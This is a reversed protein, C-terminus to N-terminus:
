DRMAITMEREFEGRALDKWSELSALYRYFEDEVAYSGVESSIDDVESFVRANPDKAMENLMKVNRLSDSDMAKTIYVVSGDKNCLSGSANISFAVRDGSFERRIRNFVQILIKDLYHLVRGADDILMSRSILGGAYRKKDRDAQKDQRVKIEAQVEYHDDIESFFEFMGEKEEPDIKDPVGGTEAATKERMQADVLEMVQDSYIDPDLCEIDFDSYGYAKQYKIKSENSLLAQSMRKKLMDYFNPQNMRVDFDKASSLTPITQLTYEHGHHEITDKFLRWSMPLITENRNWVPSDGARFVISNRESLSNLDNYSIVPEEKVAVTYSVNNDVDIGKILKGMKKTVTKSERYAVHRTNSMKVLTDIMSDDTSKLFVINSTNHTPIMNDTIYLHDPHDVMICQVEDDRLYEVKVIPNEDADITLRARDEESYHSLVEQSPPVLQRLHVKKGQALLEALQDTSVVMRKRKPKPKDLAVANGM